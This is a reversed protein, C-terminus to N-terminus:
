RRRPGLSGSVGAVQVARALLTGHRQRLGRKRAADCRGADPAGIVLGQGPVLWPPPM